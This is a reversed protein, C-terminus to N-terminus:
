KKATLIQLFRVWEIVVDKTEIWYPEIFMYGITLAVVFISVAIIKRSTKM